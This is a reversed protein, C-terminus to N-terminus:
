KYAPVFIADGTRNDVVSGYAYFTGEQVSIVAYVSDYNCNQGSLVNGIQFNQYKLITYNESFLIKGDGSYISLLITGDKSTFNSFGINTRFNENCKLSTIYGIGNKGILEDSGLSPVFQGYTGNGTNNYTRSIAIIGNAGEIFLSGSSDGSEDFVEKVLDKLYIQQFANIEFDKNRGGKKSEYRLKVSKNQSNTNLLWLDSQWNTGYAGESHAVVAIIKTEQEVEDLKKFPIYIADGTLNDIVSGYSIVGGGSLVEIKAYGNDVDPFGLDNWNGQKWSFPMIDMVKNGLEFGSSNYATIKINTKIGEVETFGINTRFNYNENLGIIFGSNGQRLARSRISNEGLQAPIFQGYTGNGTDNYTRSTIVLLKDLSIRLNGSSNDSIGCTNKLLDEYFIAKKGNLCRNECVPSSTGDEGKPVFILDYCVKEDYPNLIMVDTKWYTGGVGYSSAVAPIFSNEGYPSVISFVDDSLDFYDTKKADKISIKYNFGSPIDFPVFWNYSGTNLASSDINAFFKGGEYLDISVKSTCDSGSTNWIINYSQGKYFTEGGNPFVVFVSCTPTSKIAFYNDSYDFYNSNVIDTIKIKYSNSDPIDFPPSWPFIGNNPANSSITQIFKTGQYLEIKVYSQCYVGNSTWTIDYNEGKYWTEYGNPSTVQIACPSGSITFDNNSYDYYFNNTLDTIKVKYDNGQPINDPIAWSFTGDNETSSSITSYFSNNKYLEIKVNSSCSSGSSTWNINYTLTNYWVEGGNPSFITYTCQPNAITFYNDSFDNNSINDLDTVKIRYDSGSTLGAQVTWSYLGNNPASSAITSVKNTGKYLDISVNSGCIAGGFNWTINYTAGKYFTEGGNPYNVTFNCTPPPAITFFNDSYDGIFSYILDSVQIRYDNGDPLSNSVNFTFLGDNPTSNAITQIFSTGKYLEIKVNSPCTAGSSTWTINYNQGKYLNEGGNPYTISFTCDVPPGSSSVIALSHDVGAGISFANSINLVQVPVNSNNNTGDGLQGSSNGGWAWIIGNSSISLSHFGGGELSIINSIGQVKVPINSNNSTGNGLQGNSNWGWAWVEGSSTLALSHNTGGAISIVNSLFSVDVPINSNNNNGNGLQGYNNLGWAKISFNEIALSHRSGAAIMTANSINLVQIPVNSDSNTGDGLQGFNNFGWAWVTGDNLLALSHDYGAAISVANTINLVQVPVNSDINTGDGLQGYFNYGWAWVTGDSRLALSHNFGSSVDVINTLGFVQVPVNSDINTGDGLQGFNNNGWAWVTGDNRLAISHRDGGDIDIINLINLVQIPTNSNNNTGNGLQGSSNLGWAWPTGATQSFVQFSFFLFCFLIKLM